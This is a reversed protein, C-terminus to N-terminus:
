LTSMPSAFPDDLRVELGKMYENKRQRSRQASERGLGRLRLVLTPSLAPLFAGYCVCLGARVFFLAPCRLPTRSSPHAGAGKRSASWKRLLRRRLRCGVVVDANDWSPVRVQPESSVSLCRISVLSGFSVKKGHGTVPNASPHVLMAEQFRKSPLQVAERPAAAANPSGLPCFGWSPSGVGANSGPADLFSM